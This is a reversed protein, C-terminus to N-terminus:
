FKWQHPEPPLSSNTLGTDENQKANKHLLVAIDQLLSLHHVQLVDSRWLIDTLWLEDVLGLFVILWVALLWEPVEGFKSFVDL